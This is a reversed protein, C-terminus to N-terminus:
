SINTAYLSAEDKMQDLTLMVRQFGGNSMREPTIFNWIHCRYRDNWWWSELSYGAKELIQICRDPLEVVPNM